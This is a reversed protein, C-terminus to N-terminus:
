CSMPAVLGIMWLVNLLGIRAIIAVSFAGAGGLVPTFAFLVAEYAVYAALLALVLEVPRGISPLRRVLASVATAILAAAGIAFRTSSSPIASCGWVRDGPQRDLRRCRGALRRFSATDRRRFSRITDCVCFCLKGVRV